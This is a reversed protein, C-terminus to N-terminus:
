VAKDAETLTLDAGQPANHIKKTVEFFAPEAEITRWEAALGLDRMLPVESRLIEAVGGGTSTANVNLVRLDRLPAALRRLEALVDTGAREAYAAL